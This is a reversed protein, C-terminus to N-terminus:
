TPDEAHLEHGKLIDDLSQSLTDILQDGTPQHM